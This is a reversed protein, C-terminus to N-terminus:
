SERFKPILAGTLKERILTVATFVFGNEINWRGEIQNGHEGFIGVACPMSAYFKGNSKLSITVDSFDLWTGMLPYWVKYVSEKASFVLLDGYIHEQFKVVDAYKYFSRMNERDGDTLVISHIQDPLPQHPEVDIGIAAIHKKWAVAAICYGECHTISGVVGAPWRPEGRPGRGIAVAEHGLRRLADRACARGTTFEARRKYVAQSVIQEEEPLLPDSRHSRASVVEINGSLICGLGSDEVAGRFSESVM